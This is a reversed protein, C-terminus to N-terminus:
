HLHYVVHAVSPSWCARCSGCINGQRPAPCVHAGAPARSTASVASTTPWSRRPGDDIMVSSVRVVLNSPIEGGAGTHALVMGAEQTPLWHSIKPTREAVRCIAALHEISQLDGSDHWRHFGTPSWRFRRGGQAQLRVGIAGLDVRLYPWAHTGLLLVVMADVWRPDALSALRKAQAAAANPTKYFGRFAYCTACVTGPQQALKAGTICATAPLGYSTGPMKAPFSLSGVISRAVGMSMRKM